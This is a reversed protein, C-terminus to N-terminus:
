ATVVPSSKGVITLTDVAQFFHTAKGDKMTWIHTANAKFPKGSAAWKGEYYGLMVVKNECAFFEQVSVHFDEYYEPMPAFIDQVVAQPGNSIGDGKVYPFGQCENWEINQDFVSTVGEINGEAFAQYAQQIIELNNM